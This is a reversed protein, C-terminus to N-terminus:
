RVVLNPSYATIESEPWDTDSLESENTFYPVVIKYCDPDAPGFGDQHETMGKWEDTLTEGPELKTFGHAPIAWECAMSYVVKEAACTELRWFSMGCYIHRAYWIPVDLNNRVSIIATEGPRYEPKDTTVSVPGPQPTSDMNASKTGAQSCALTFFLILGITLLSVNHKM